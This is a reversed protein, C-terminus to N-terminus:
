IIRSNYASSTDYNKDYNENTFNSRDTTKSIYKSSDKIGTAVPTATMKRMAFVSKEM